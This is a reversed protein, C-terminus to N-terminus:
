IDHKSIPLTFTFVAGGEPNNSVWIRGDHQEVISKSIALGMGTGKNKTTYFAEFVAELNHGEIGLGSDSVSVFISDTEGVRTSIRVKRNEAPQSKVADLANVLLNLIVQQIQVRDGYVTPIKAELDVTISADVIIIESQLLDVIGQIASNLELAERKPEEKKLMMRLRQIVEAARKDNSVIDHLLEEVKCLDPRENNLFRLAAQASSLIAALPQNIEHAIAATLTGMTTLRDLHMVEDQLSTRSAIVEELNSAMRNFARSLEGIEDRAGTDIRADLNGKGISKTGEFLNELPRLVSRRVLFTLGMVSVCVVAVIGLVLGGFRKQGILLERDAKRELRDIRTVLEQNKILIQSELRNELQRYLKPNDQFPPSKHISILRSFLDKVDRYDDQLSVPYSLHAPELSGIDILNALANYRQNWQELPRREQYLLYEDALINLDFIGRVVTHIDRKEEHKREMHRFSYIVAISSIAVLTACLYVIIKLKKKIMM